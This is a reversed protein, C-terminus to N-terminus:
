GRVEDGEEEEEDAAHIRAQREEELLEVIRAGLFRRADAWDGMEFGRRRAVKDREAAYEGYWELARVALGDVVVGRARVLRVATTLDRWSCGEPWDPADWGWYLGSADCDRGHPLVGGADRLTEEFFAEIYDLTLKRLAKLRHPGTVLDVLAYDPLVASPGFHLIELNDLRALSSPLPAHDRCSNDLHLTHLLPFTPLVDEIAGLTDASVYADISLAVLCTPASAVLSRLEAHGSSPGGSYVELSTLHPVLDRLPVRWTDLRASIKLTRVQNFVPRTSSSTQLIVPTGHAHFSLELTKVNRLQGLQALWAGADDPFAADLDPGYILLAFHQVSDLHVLTSPHEFILHLLEHDEPRLGPNFRLGFYELGTLAGLLSAVLRTAAAASDVHYPRDPRALEDQEHRTSAPNARKRHWSTDFSLAAVLSGLSRGPERSDEVLTRQLLDLTRFSKIEISRYLQEQEIPYLSRCLPRHPAPQQRLIEVQLPDPADLPHDPRAPHRYALESIYKLIEVPLMLLACDDNSPERALQVVPEKFSM